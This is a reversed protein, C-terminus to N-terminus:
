RRTKCWSTPQNTLPVLSGSSLSCLLWITSLASLSWPLRLEPLGVPRSFGLDSSLAQWFSHAQCISSIELWSPPLALYILTELSGHGARCAEETVWDHGTRQLGMSQLGGLEETWPIRWALISSLTAMGEELPDEQGLSQFWTGQM